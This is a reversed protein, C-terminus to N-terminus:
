AIWADISKLLAHADRYVSFAGAEMLEARSYGGSEVGICPLDARASAAVDWVSDGVVVVRDRRCGSKELAITFIDPHPKAKDTDGASVVDDIFDDADLKARMTDLLDEPSSTALVITVGRGHLAELLAKAGSFARVEPVLADFNARWAREIEDSPCGILAEVLESGGMGIRRHVAALAPHQGHGALARAWALTHHYNSDVLTGDVDFLVASITV